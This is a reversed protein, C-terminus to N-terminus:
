CADMISIPVLHQWACRVKAIKSTSLAEVGNEGDFTSSSTKFWQVRSSAETGGTVIGAVSVKSGEKLEGIIKLNTVKPPATIQMILLFLFFSFSYLLLLLFHCFLISIVVIVFSFLSIALDFM